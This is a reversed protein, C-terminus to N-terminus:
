LASRSQGRSLSFEFPLIGFELGVLLRLGIGIGQDVPVVPRLRRVYRM